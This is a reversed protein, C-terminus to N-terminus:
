HSARSRQRGAPRTQADLASLTPWTLILHPRIFLSRSREIRSQAHVAHGCKDVVRCEVLLISNDGVEGHRSGHILPWGDRRPIHVFRIRLIGLSRRRIVRHYLPKRYRDYQPTQVASLVDM